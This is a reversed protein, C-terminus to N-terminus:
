AADISATQTGPRRSPKLAANRGALRGSTFAWGLHHGNGKLLLGGQGNSGAAFLGPIPRDHADLVEHRENVALGGDTYNIYNKVPGLAYFPGTVLRVRHKREFSDPRDAGTAEPPNYEAVARELKEPDAGISKALGALTPATRVLDPRNKEYDEVYAYAIGPATSIYHPWRSFKEALAGDFVIYAVGGPQYALDFSMGRTEDAFRQGRRNVLIAGAEFLEHSPVMVTTLFGMVFRRVVSKPSHRLVLSVLRMLWTSPPIRSIWSPQPPPVFRAGGGFLDGNIIRAGVEIAMQLGDGTNSPNVAETRAVADSILAGKMDFGGAYDGAALVTARAHVTQVPKGPQEFEVATVRGDTQLLRKARASTIIEVERRRAERELHFIYARSNPLVAHMRRKQHPPEELPGLFEVGMSGLWRVTEPVNETLVRRLVDNDPRPFDKTFLEMDRYHEAPSDSIGERAQYRTQTATISGISRATTGGLNNNKELLIVRAGATAAGVAAALGSGGGGVVVVDAQM